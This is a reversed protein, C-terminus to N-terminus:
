GGLHPVLLPVQHMMFKISSDLLRLIPGPHLGIFLV